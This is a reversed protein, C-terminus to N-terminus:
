SYRLPRLRLGSGGLLVLVEAFILALALLLLLILDGDLWWAGWSSAVAFGVVVGVGEGIELWSMWGAGEELWGLGEEEEGEGGGWTAARM